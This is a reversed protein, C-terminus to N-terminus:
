DTEKENNKARKVAERASNISFPKGDKQRFQMLLDPSLFDVKMILLEAIKDLGALATIGDRYLYGLNVLDNIYDPRNENSKLLNKIEELNELQERQLARQYERENNKLETQYAVSYQLSDFASVQPLIKSNM